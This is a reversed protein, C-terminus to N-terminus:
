WESGMKSYSDQVPRTVGDIPERDLPPEMCLDTVGPKGKGVTAGKPMPEGGVCPLIPFESKQGGM